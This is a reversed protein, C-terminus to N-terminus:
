IQLWLKLILGELKHHQWLIDDVSIYCKYIFASLIPLSFYLYSSELRNLYM